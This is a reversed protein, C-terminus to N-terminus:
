PEELLGLLRAGQLTVGNRAEPAQGLASVQLAVQGYLRRQELVPLGSLILTGGVQTVFMTTPREVPRRRALRDFVSPGAEPLDAEAQPDVVPLPVPEVARAPGRPGTKALPLRREEQCTAEPCTYRPREGVAGEPQPM